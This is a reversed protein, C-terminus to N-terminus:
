EEEYISCAIDFVRIDWDPDDRNLRIEERFDQIDHDQMKYPNKAESDYYVHRLEHRIIRKKDELTINEYINGDIIMIYDYGESVYNDASLYKEKDNTKKISAFTYRGKSKRKKGDMLVKIHCNVLQPYYEEVIEGMLDLVDQTAETYRSM